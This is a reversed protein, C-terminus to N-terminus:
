LDGSEPTVSDIEDALSEPLSLSRSLGSITTERGSWLRLGELTNESHALLRGDHEM